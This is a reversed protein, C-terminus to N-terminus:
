ALAGARTSVGCRPRKRPTADHWCSVLTQTALGPFVGKIMQDIKEAHVGRRLDGAALRSEAAGFVGRLRRGPPGGWAFFLAKTRLLEAYKTLDMYRWIQVGDEPTDFKEHESYM